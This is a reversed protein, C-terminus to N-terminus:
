KAYSVRNDLVGNLTDVKKFNDILANRLKYGTKYLKVPNTFFYMKDGGEQLYDTTLVLYTKGEEVKKGNVAVNVAKAQEKDIVLKLNSTPHATQGKIFYAILEQMKEYSLEAVVLENEFPMVEFANRASVDGKAITSRVGGFNMMVMDIEKDFKKKFLEQTQALSIDAMLNGMSSELVGDDKSFEYASFCLPTDLQKNLNERFPKVFEDITADGVITSDIPKQVGTVKEVKFNENKCSFFQFAIVCLMLM